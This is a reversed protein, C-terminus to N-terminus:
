VQSAFFKDVLGNRWEMLYINKVNSPIKPIMELIGNIECKVM